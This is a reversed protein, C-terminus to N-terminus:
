QGKKDNDLKGGKLMKCLDCHERIDADTATGRKLKMSLESIRKKLKRRRLAFLIRDVSGEDLAERAIFGNGRAILSPSELDGLLRWRQELVEPEEGSLLASIINQATVNELLPLLQEPLFKKRLSGDSWLFSCLVCDLPCNVSEVRQLRIEPMYANQRVVRMKSRRLEIERNLVHPYIGLREGIKDLYHATDFASLSALGEFLEDRAPASREPSAIDAARLETHYLPLPLAERMFRSFLERGGETSLLEDPDKAGWLRIVKVSIGERQLVYMGRLAAERGATDSDYCIFCQSAMRTILAAQAETLATGLSAVTNPYGTIHARIADMYGEVLIVFGREKIATKAKDFLYLNNRKNFISSDPSNLYKAGDGEIIRGGFGITRGMYNNIPFMIRGRFRDHISKTGYSALGAHVIDDDHFGESRLFRTLADWSEPAWGIAFAECAEANLKRRALYARAASGSPADLSQIFFRRAADNMSGGVAATRDAGQFVYSLHVGAREALRELAERFELHEIEMLFTFVDGGKGCGFCHFTERDPSVIFSPTKESHFPCLGWYTQGRRTLKVYDSVVEAIDLRSKIESIDNNAM